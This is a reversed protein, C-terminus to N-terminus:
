GKIKMPIGCHVLTVEHAAAAIVQNCRGVLDRYQRALANEPVVGLGVENSVFLIVSSSDGAAVLLDSCSAAVEDEALSGRGAEHQSFMLNSVWLTLCDVVIVAAQKNTRLIGALDLPEEVTRWGRGARDAKHRKIRAQMEPDNQQNVPCTALFVREGPIKEAALQCYRSKGSRSGGTVLIIKPEV